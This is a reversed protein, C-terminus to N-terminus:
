AIMLEEVKRVYPIDDSEIDSLLNRLNDMLEEKSLGQTHYDPYDNLYGMYFDGDKWYTYKISKMKM